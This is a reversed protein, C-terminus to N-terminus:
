TTEFRMDISKGNFGPVIESESVIQQKSVSECNNGSEIIKTNTITIKWCINKDFMNKMLLNVSDIIIQKENSNGDLYYRSILEYLPMNSNEYSTESKLVGIVFINNGLKEKTNEISYSNGKNFDSFTFFLLIIIIVLIFGMFIILPEGLLGKKNIILKM